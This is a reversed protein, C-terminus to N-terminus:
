PDAIDTGGAGLIFQVFRVGVIGHNYSRRLGTVRSRERGERQAPSLAAAPGAGLAAPLTPASRLIRGPTRRDRSRVAEDPGALSGRGPPEPPPHVPVRRAGPCRAACSIASAM